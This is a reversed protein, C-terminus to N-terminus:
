LKNNCKYKIIIIIYIINRNINMNIIKRKFIRIKLGTVTNTKSNTISMSM